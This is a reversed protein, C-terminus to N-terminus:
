LIEVGQNRAEMIESSFETRLRYMVRQKEKTAVREKGQTNSLTILLHLPTKKKM